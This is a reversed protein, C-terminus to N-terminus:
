PAPEEALEPALVRVDARARLDAVLQKVAAQVREQALQHRVAERAEPSALAAGQGELFRALEADNVRASRGARSDLYRAVKLERALSVLLDEEGLDAAALFRHYAAEGPFRERFRRLAGQVEERSVDDVQLRAAEDAVLLQDVLWRLSARLAAADLPATAAEIAGQGVLAVRAEQELRTLLVPRPQAGAPNRIVAVIQEVVRGQTPTAALTAALLLALMGAM